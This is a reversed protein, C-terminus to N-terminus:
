RAVLEKVAGVFAQVAKDLDGPTVGKSANSKDKEDREAKEGPHTQDYRARYQDAYQKDRQRNQEEQVVKNLATGQLLPDNYLVLKRLKKSSQRSEEATDSGPGSLGGSFLKGTSLGVSATEDFYNKGFQGFSIGQGTFERAAPNVAPPAPVAPTPMVRPNVRDLVALTKEM